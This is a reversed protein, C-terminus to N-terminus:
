AMNGYRTFAIPILVVMFTDEGEVGACVSAAEVGYGETGNQHATTLLDKGLHPTAVRLHLM